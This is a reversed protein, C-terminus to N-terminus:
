GFISRKGIQFLSLFSKEEPSEEVESEEEPSEEVESEEEEFEEEESEEEESEEEESEEVEEVESEEVESEEVLLCPRQTPRDDDDSSFSLNDIGNLVDQNRKRTKAAKAGEHMKRRVFQESETAKMFIDSENLNSTLYPSYLKEGAEESKRARKDEQSEKELEEPIMESIDWDPHIGFILQINKHIVLNEWLFRMMNSSRTLRDVRLCYLAKINQGKFDKFADDSNKINILSPHEPYDMGGIFTLFDPRSVNFGLLFDHGIVKKNRTKEVFGGSKGNHYLMNIKWNNVKACIIGMKIQEAHSSKNELERKLDSTRAYLLMTGNSNVISDNHEKIDPFLLNFIVYNRYYKCTIQTRFDIWANPYDEDWEVFVSIDGEKIFLKNTNDKSGATKDLTLILRKRLRSVNSNVKANLFNKIKYTREPM